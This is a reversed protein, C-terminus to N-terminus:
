GCAYLHACAASGGFSVARNFFYRWGHANTRTARSIMAGLTLDWQYRQCHSPQGLLHAVCASLASSPGWHGSSTNIM